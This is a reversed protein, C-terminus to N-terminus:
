APQAAATGPTTTDHARSPRREFRRRYSRIWMTIAPFGLVTVTALALRWNGAPGPLHRGIALLL